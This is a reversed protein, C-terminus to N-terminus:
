DGIARSEPSAAREPSLSAEARRELAFDVCSDATM